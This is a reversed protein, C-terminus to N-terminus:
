MTCKIGFCCLASWPDSILTPGISKPTNQKLSYELHSSVRSKKQKQYTTPVSLRVKTLTIRANQKKRILSEYEAGPEAPVGSSLRVGHGAAQEGPDSQPPASMVARERDRPIIIRQISVVFRVRTEDMPPQPRMFLPLHLLLDQGDQPQRVSGSRM